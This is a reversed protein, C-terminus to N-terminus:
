SAANGKVVVVGCAAVYESCQWTNSLESLPILKGAPKIRAQWRLGRHKNM